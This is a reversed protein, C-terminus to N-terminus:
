TADGSSASSSRWCTAVCMPGMARGSSTRKTSLSGLVREPLIMRRTNFALACPNGSPSIEVKSSYLITSNFFPLQYNSILSQLSITTSYGSAIASPTDFGCVIPFQLSSLSLRFDGAQKQETHYLNFTKPNGTKPPIGICLFIRQWSNVRIKM